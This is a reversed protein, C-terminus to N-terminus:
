WCSNWLKAHERVPKEIETKEKSGHEEVTVSEKLKSVEAWCEEEEFDRIITIQMEQGQLKAELGILQLEEDALLM